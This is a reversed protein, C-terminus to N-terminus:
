GDAIRLLNLLLRPLEFDHWRPDVKGEAGAEEVLKDGARVADASFMGVGFVQHKCWSCHPGQVARGAARLRDALERVTDGMEWTRPAGIAPCLAPEICHTPCDLGGVLRVAHPRRRPSRLADSTGQFRNSRCARNPWRHAGRRLVWEFMLHAHPRLFSTITPCIPPHASPPLFEDFFLTWDSVVFRRDPAKGLERSAQCEPNRDVVICSRYDTKRAGQSQWQSAYFTGYM